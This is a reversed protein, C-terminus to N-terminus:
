SAPNLLRIVAFVGGQPDMATAFRGVEPIDQPGMKITGGLDSITKVAADTDDVAFYTLWHPPVEGWEKQIELMGAAPRDGNMFLTYQMTGMDSTQAGWGFVNTYFSGSGDVDATYLENWTFSGPENALESGFRQLPQWLAVVAGQPDFLVAMKGIDSVDMPELM